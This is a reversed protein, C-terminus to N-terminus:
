MQFRLFSRLGAATFLIREATRRLTRSRSVSDERYECLFTERRVFSGGLSGSQSSAPRNLLSSSQNLERSKKQAARKPKM